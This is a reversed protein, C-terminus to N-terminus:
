ICSKDNNVTYLYVGEAYSLTNLKITNVGRSSAIIQSEIEEGLLNYIKFILMQNTGIVFQIKAQNISPNPYVDKLEFTMDHLQYITSTAAFILIIITLLMMKFM